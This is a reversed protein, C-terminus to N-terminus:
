YRITCGKLLAGCCVTANVRKGQANTGRIEFAAHDDSGCGYWAPALRHKDLVQVERLGSSVAAQIATDEDVLYGCGGLGVLVLLALLYKRM